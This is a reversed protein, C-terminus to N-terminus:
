WQGISICRLLWRQEICTVHSSYPGSLHLCLKGLIRKGILKVGMLVFFLMPFYIFKNYVLRPFIRFILDLVFLQHCHRWGFAHTRKGLIACDNGVLVRTKNRKVGTLIQNAAAKPTTSGIRKFYKSISDVTVMKTFREYGKVHLANPNVMAANNRIMDTQVFGPHVVCVRVNPQTLANDLMLAESFGRVAYKSTCYMIDGPIAMLGELSSVNVIYAEEEVKLLPFLLKTMNVVGNVNVNM